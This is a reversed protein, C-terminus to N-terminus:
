NASCRDQNPHYALGLNFVNSSGARAKVESQEQKAKARAAIRDVVQVVTPEPPGTGTPPTISATAIGVVTVAHRAWRYSRACADLTM